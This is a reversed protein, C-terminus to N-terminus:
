DGVEPIEPRIKRRLTYDIASLVRFIRFMHMSAWTSWPLVVRASWRIAPAPAPTTWGLSAPRRRNM